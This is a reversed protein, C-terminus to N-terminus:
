GARHPGCSPEFWAPALGPPFMHRLTHFCTFVGPFLPCQASAGGSVEEVRRLPGKSQTSPLEIDDFSTATCTLSRCLAAWPPAPWVPRCASNGEVCLIASLFLVWIKCARV